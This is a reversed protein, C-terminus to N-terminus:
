AEASFRRQIRWWCFFLFGFSAAAILAQRAASAGSLLLATPLVWLMNALVFLVVVFTHSHGQRVLVQYAHDRHPNYWQDGRWIRMLLTATADVLFVSLLIGLVVTLHPNTVASQVLIAAIGFGLSGSGVDGMFVSAPPWNYVLFGLCVGAVCPALVASAGAVGASLCFASATVGWFLGESAAMGDTGDMFNYLNTVWVMGFIFIAKWCWGPFGLYEVAPLAFVVASSAVLHTILRVWPSLPRHDDWWGVFGVLSLGAALSWGPLPALRGTLVLLSIGLVLVSLMAIGGGRPVPHEHSRRADPRDILKKRLAYRTALPVLLATLLASAVFLGSTFGLSM